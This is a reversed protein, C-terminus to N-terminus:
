RAVCPGDRPAVENLVVVEQTMRAWGVLLSKKVQCNLLNDNLALAYVHALARLNRVFFSEAM